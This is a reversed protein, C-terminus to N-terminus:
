VLHISIATASKPSSIFLYNQDRSRLPILTNIDPYYGSVTRVWGEVFNYKYLFFNGTDLLVALHQVDEIQFTSVKTISAEFTITQFMIYQPITSVVNTEDIKYIQLLRNKRQGLILMYDDYTGTEIYAFALLDYRGPIKQIEIFLLSFPDFCYIYITGGDDNLVAVLLLEYNKTVAVEISTDDGFLRIKQLLQWEADVASIDLGLIQLSTNVGQFLVVLLQLDADMPEVLRLDRIRYGFTFNQFDYDISNDLRHPRWQLQISSTATEQCDNEITVNLRGGYKRSMRRVKEADGDKHHRRMLFRNEDEIRVPDFHTEFKEKGRCRLALADSHNEDRQISRRMEAAPMEEVEVMTVNSDYDLYLLHKSHPRTALVECRGILQTVAPVLPVFSTLDTPPTYHLVKEIAKGNIQQVVFLGKELIVNNRLALSEFYMKPAITSISQQYLQSLEHGNLLDVASPGVLTLRGRVEKVGTVDQHYDAKEFVVDDILINNIASIRTEEGEIVLNEFTLYGGIDQQHQQQMYLPLLADTPELMSSYRRVRNLLLHELSFNNVAVTAFNEAVSVNGFEVAPIARNNRLFVLNDVSVNNISNEVFLYEIRPPVAFTKEGEIVLDLGLRVISANLQLVDVGNVLPARVFELAQISENFTLGNVFNKACM